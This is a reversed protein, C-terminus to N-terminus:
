ASFDIAVKEARKIWTHDKSVIKVRNTKELLLNKNKKIESLLYILDDKSYPISWGINNKEIYEASYTGKSAIVPKGHGIYEFLKFPSAFSRYEVPKVFLMAIDSMDLYKEMESGMEHIVHINAPIGNNILEYQDKVKLWEEKRTCVTFQIDPLSQLAKFIEHMQYNSGMGGVYFLNLYSKIPNVIFQENYNNHGPELVDFVMSNTRPIYDAMKLTPLYIKTVYKRYKMLDLYFFRRAIFAKWKPIDNTYNPFVWYIDRYFLGIPIQFIKCTKFLKYDIFPRLPIHHPDTFAIPVNSSESYMFDYHVGSEINDIISNIRQKRVYSHGSVLDVDYGLKKFANYMQM